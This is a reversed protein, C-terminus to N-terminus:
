TPPASSPGPAEPGPGPGNKPAAQMEAILLLLEDWKSPLYTVAGKDDKQERVKRDRFLEHMKERPFDPQLKTLCLWALERQGADSGLARSCVRGTWEYEGAALDDKHLQLADRYGDEGLAARGGRIGEAARAAVAAGYRIEIDLTVPSVLFDRGRWTFTGPMGAAKETETM